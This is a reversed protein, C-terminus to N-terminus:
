TVEGLSAIYLFLQFCIEGGEAKYYKLEYLGVLVTNKKGSLHQQEM